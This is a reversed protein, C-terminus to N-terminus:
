TEHDEALMKTLEEKAIILTLPVCFRTTPPRPVTSPPEGEGSDHHGFPRQRRTPVEKSLPPLAVSPNGITGIPPKVLTALATTPIGTREVSPYKDDDIGTVPVCPEHIPTWPGVAGLGCGGGVTPAAEVGLPLPNQVAALSPPTKV